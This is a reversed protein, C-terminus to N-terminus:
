THPCLGTFTGPVVMAQGVKPAPRRLISPDEFVGTHGLEPRSVRLVPNWHLPNIQSASGPPVWPNLLSSPFCLRGLFFCFWSTAGTPVKLKDTNPVQPLCPPAYMESGLSSPAPDGDTLLTRM